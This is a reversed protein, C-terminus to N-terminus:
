WGEKEVDEETSLLHREVEFVHPEVDFYVLSLFSDLVNSAVWDFLSEVPVAKCGRFVSKPLEM